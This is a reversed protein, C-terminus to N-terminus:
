SLSNEPLYLQLGRLNQKRKSKHHKCLLPHTRRLLKTKKQFQIEQKQYLHSSLNSQLFELFIVKLKLPSAQQQPTISSQQTTPQSFTQSVLSQQTAPANPISTAPYFCILIM